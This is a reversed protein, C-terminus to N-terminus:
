RREWPKLKAFADQQERSAPEFMVDVPTDQVAYLFAAAEFRLAPYKDKITSEYGAFLALREPTRSAMPAFVRECGRQTADDLAERLLSIAIGQRRVEAKVQVEFLECTDDYYDVVRAGLLDGDQVRFFVVRESARRVGFLANRLQTTFQDDSFRSAFEPCTARTM